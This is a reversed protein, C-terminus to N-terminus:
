TSRTQRRAEQADCRQGGFASGSRDHDLVHLCTAMQRAPSLTEGARAMRRAAVRRAGIDGGARGHRWYRGTGLAGTPRPEYSLFGGVELVAYAARVRQAVRRRVRPGSLIAFFPRPMRGAAGHWVCRRWQRLTTATRQQHGRPSQRRSRGRISRRCHHCTLRAKNSDYNRYAALARDNNRTTMSSGPAGEATHLAM